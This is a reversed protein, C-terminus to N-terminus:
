FSETIRVEDFSLERENDGNKDNGISLLSPIAYISWWIFLVTAVAVGLGFNTKRIKRERLDEYTARQPLLGDKESVLDYENRDM